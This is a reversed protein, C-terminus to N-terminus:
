GQENLGGIQLRWAGILVRCEPSMREIINAIVLRIRRARVIETYTM